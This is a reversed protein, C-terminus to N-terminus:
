IRAERLYDYRRKVNGSKIVGVFSATYKTDRDHLLYRCDRLAGCGEMTVNRAMQQMWQETPHTTIGAIEVRRSALHITSDLIPATAQLRNAFVGNGM